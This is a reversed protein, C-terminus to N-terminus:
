SRGESCPSLRIDRYPIDWRPEVPPAGQGASGAPRYRYITVHGLITLAPLASKRFSTSIKLTGIHCPHGRMGGLQNRRNQILRATRPHIERPNLNQRC